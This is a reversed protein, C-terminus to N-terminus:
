IHPIILLRPCNSLLHRFVHMVLRITWAKLLISIMKLSMFNFSLCPPIWHPIGLLANVVLLSSSGPFPSSSIHSGKISSCIM